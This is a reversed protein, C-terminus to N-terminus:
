SEETRKLAALYREVSRMVADKARTEIVSDFQTGYLREFSLPELKNRISEVITASLPIRNPFSYMFSVYRRDASVSLTDGTLLVGRGQAGQNWLLVTSGAFHGGVHFLTCESGLEYKAGDWWIIRESPRMVWHKDRVHLYICADFREAWEVMSSYFHPHSVAIVRIGGISRILDVTVDDLYSICDWLINGEQTRILKAHQGIAFEPVTEIGWLYPEHQYFANRYGHRQMDALTTWRQGERGVYQREDQCIPCTSPPLDTEPYQTGCTMCIWAPM